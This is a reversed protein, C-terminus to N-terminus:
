LCVCMSVFIFVFMHVGVPDLFYGELPLECKCVYM